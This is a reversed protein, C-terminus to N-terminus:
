PLFTRTKGLILDNILENSNTLFKIGKDLHLIKIKKSLKVKPKTINGNIMHNVKNMEKKTMFIERCQHLECGWINTPNFLLLMSMVVFGLVRFTNLQFKSKIQM